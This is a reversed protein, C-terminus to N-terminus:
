SLWGLHFITSINNEVINRYLYHSVEIEMKSEVTQGLYYYVLMESEGNGSRSLPNIIVERGAKLGNHFRLLVIHTFISSLRGSILNLLYYSNCLNHNLPSEIFVNKLSLNRLTRQLM